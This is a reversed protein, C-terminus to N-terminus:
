DAPRLLGLDLSAFCRQFPQPPAAVHSAVSSSASLSASNPRASRAETTWFEAIEAQRIDSRQPQREPEVDLAVEAKGTAHRQRDPGVGRPAGPRDKTSRLQEAQDLRRMARM